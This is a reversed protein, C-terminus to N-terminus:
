RGVFVGGMGAVRGIGSDVSSGFRKVLLAQKVTRARGKPHGPAEFGRFRQLRAIDGYQDDYAGQLVQLRNFANIRAPLGAAAAAAMNRVPQNPLDVQNNSKLAAMILRGPMLPM